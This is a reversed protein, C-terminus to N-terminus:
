VEQINHSNKYRGVNFKYAHFTNHSPVELNYDKDSFVQFDFWILIYLQLPLVKEETIKLGQTITWGPKTRKQREGLNSVM